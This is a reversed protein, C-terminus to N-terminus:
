EYKKWIWIEKMNMNNWIREYKMNWVEYTPMAPMSDISRTNPPLRTNPMFERRPQCAQSGSASVHLLLGLHTCSWDSIHICGSIHICSWHTCGSIHRNYPRVSISHLLSQQYATPDSVWEIRISPKMNCSVNPAGARALMCVLKYWVCWRTPQRPEWTAGM